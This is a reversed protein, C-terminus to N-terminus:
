SSAGCRHCYTVICKAPPSPFFLRPKYSPLREPKLPLVLGLTSFHATDVAPRHSPDLENKNPTAHRELRTRAVTTARKRFERRATPDSTKWPERKWARVDVRHQLHSKQPLSRLCRCSCHPTSQEIAHVCGQLWMAANFKNPAHAVGVCAPPASSM